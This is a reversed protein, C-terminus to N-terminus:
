VHATGTALRKGKWRYLLLSAACCLALYVGSLAIGALNWSHGALVLLSLPTLSIAATQWVASRALLGVFAGTLLAVIPWLVFQMVRMGRVMMDFPDGYKEITEEYKPVGGEAASKRIWEGQSSTQLFIWVGVSLLVFSFIAGGIVVLVNRKM